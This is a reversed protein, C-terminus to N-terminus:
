LVLAKRGAAQDAQNYIVCIESTKAPYPSKCAHRLPYSHDDTRETSSTAPVGRGVAPTRVWGAHKYNTSPEKLRKLSPQFLLYRNCFWLWLPHHTSFVMVLRVTQIEPTVAVCTPGRRGEFERGPPKGSTKSNAEARSSSVEYLALQQIGFDGRALPPATLMKAYHPILVGRGRKRVDTFGLM